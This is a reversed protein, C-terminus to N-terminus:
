HRYYKVSGYVKLKDNKVDQLQVLRVHLFIPSFGWSVNEKLLKHHDEDQKEIYDPDVYQDFISYTFDFIKRSLGSYVLLIFWFDNLKLLNLYADSKM